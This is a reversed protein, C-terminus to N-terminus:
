LDRQSYLIIGSVCFQMYHLSRYLYNSVDLDWPFCEREHRLVQKFDTFSISAGRQEGGFGEILVKSTCSSRTRAHQM